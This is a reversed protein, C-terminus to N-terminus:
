EMADLRRRVRALTDHLAAIAADLAWAGRARDGTYNSVARLMVWPVEFMACTMAIAAGEMTEVGPGYRGLRATALADTGSCTSVTIGDVVPLTLAEALAPGRRGDWRWPPPAGGPTGVHLGLDALELFDGGPVAVGEDGFRESAVLCVKGVELEAGAGAGLLRKPPAGAVGFGVVLDPRASALARALVAAASTKGVGVELVSPLLSAVGRAEIAAAHVYLASTM